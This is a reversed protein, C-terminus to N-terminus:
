ERERERERAGCAVAGANKLDTQLKEITNARARLEARCRDLFQDSRALSARKEGLARQLEITREFFTEATEKWQKSSSLSFHHLVNLSEM